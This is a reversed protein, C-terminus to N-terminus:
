MTEEHFVGETSSGMHETKEETISIQKGWFLETQEQILKGAEGRGPRGCRQWWGAGGSIRQTVSVRVKLGDLRSDGKRGPPAM